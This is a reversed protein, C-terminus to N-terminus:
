LNRQGLSVARALMASVQAESRRFSEADSAVVNFTVSLGAGGGQAAIGLRGDSGRTLPLIAEPGAEGALGTRGNGLPFTIPSQIIGGSAFPVPLGQSLVGGKAYGQASAGGGGSFLGSLLANFGQDLPKFAAKLVMDSLSLALSKMVDGLGKGKVAVGDFATVLASSFQRGHGAAAKLSEQFGTTDAVVRVTWTAFDTNSDNM